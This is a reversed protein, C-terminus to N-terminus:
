KGLDHYPPLWSVTVCQKFENDCQMAHSRFISQPNPSPDAQASLMKYTIEVGKPSGTSGSTFQLFAISEDTSGPWDYRLDLGPTHWLANVNCTLSTHCVQDLLPQLDMNRMKDKHPRAKLADTVIWNLQTPWRKGGSSLKQKLQMVQRYRNFTESTLAVTAGTSQIVHNLKLLAKNMNAPDPPYCPVCLMGARLCGLFAIFFQLGFPYIALVPTGPQLKQIHLLEYAVGASKHWLTAYTLSPTIKGTDTIWTLAPAASHRADLAHIRICDLFHHKPQYTFLHSPPTVPTSSPYLCASLSVSLAPECLGADVDATGRAVVDDDSNSDDGSCEVNKDTHFTVTPCAVTHAVATAATGVATNVLTRQLPGLELQAASIVAAAAEAAAPTYM